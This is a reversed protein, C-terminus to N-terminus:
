NMRALHRPLPQPLRGPYEADLRQVISRGAELDGKVGM